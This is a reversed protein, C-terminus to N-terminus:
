ANAFVLLGLTQIDRMVALTTVIQSRISQVAHQKSRRRKVRETTILLRGLDMHRSIIWLRLACLNHTRRPGRYTM